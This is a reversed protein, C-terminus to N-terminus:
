LFQWAFANIANDCARRIPLKAIVPYGILKPKLRRQLLIHISKTQDKIFDPADQLLLARAEDIEAIGIESASTCRPGEGITGALSVFVLEPLPRERTACRLAEALNGGAKRKFHGLAAPNESVFDDPPLRVGHRLAHLIPEGNVELLQEEEDLARAVAKGLLELLERRLISQRAAHQIGVGSM